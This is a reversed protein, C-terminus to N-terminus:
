RTRSKRIYGLIVPKDWFVIVLCLLISLLLYSRLLQECLVLLFLSDLAMNEINTFITWYLTEPIELLYLIVYIPIAWLIINAYIKRQKKYELFIGNNKKRIFLGLLIVFIARLVGVIVFDWSFNDGKLIHYNTIIYYVPVFLLYIVVISLICKLFLVNLPNKKSIM